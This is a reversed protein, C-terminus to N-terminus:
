SPKSAKQELEGKEKRLHEVYEALEALKAELRGTEGDKIAKEVARQLEAQVNLMNRARADLEESKRTAEALEKQMSHLQEEAVMLYKQRSIVTPFNTGCKPCSYMGVKREVIGHEGKSPEVIVSFTKSHTVETSGCQPCKPM